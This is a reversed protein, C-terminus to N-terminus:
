GQKTQLAARSDFEEAFPSQGPQDLSSAYNRDAEVGVSAVISTWYFSVQVIRGGHQIGGGGGGMQAIQQQTAAMVMQQQQLRAQGSGMQSGMTPMGGVGGGGVVVDM